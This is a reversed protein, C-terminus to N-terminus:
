ERSLPFGDAGHSEQVRAPADMRHLVTSLDALRVAQEKTYPGVRTRELEVVYGGTGLAEGLDRAFSRVYFGASTVLRVVVWPWAYKLLEIELTEVRRVPMNVQKKARAFKYAKRGRIKVASFAPPCQDIAGQFRALAQRVLTESPPAQLPSVSAGDGTAAGGDEYGQTKTLTGERDDTTSRWGLRIRTVYEKETGAVARLERTATRGVGIVLVGTAYPDLTGAHGVRREHTLRRVANVVDHSSMREEKYVAFVGAPLATQKMTLYWSLPEAARICCFGCPESPPARGHKPPQAARFVPGYLGNEGRALIDYPSARGM